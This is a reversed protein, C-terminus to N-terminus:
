KKGARRQEALYEMTYDEMLEKFSRGKKKLYGTWNTEKALLTQANKERNNVNYEQNRECFYALLGADGSLREMIQSIDDITLLSFAHFLLSNGKEEDLCEMVAVLIKKVRAIRKESDETSESLNKKEQNM